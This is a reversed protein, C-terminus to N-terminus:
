WSEDPAAAPAPTDILGSRVAARRAEDFVFGLSEQTEAESLYSWVGLGRAWIEEAAAGSGAVTLLARSIGHIRETAEKLPGYATSGEAPLDVVILPATRKFAVRLFEGADRCVIADWAYIEAAARIM